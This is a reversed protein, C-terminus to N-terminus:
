SVYLKGGPALLLANPSAGLALKNELKWSKVDIVAISNSGASAVYVKGAASDVAIGRPEQIGEIQAILRRKAPDFVDVKDAGRHAIVLKGDAWALTDFGPRGPIDVIAVQRLQEASAVVLVSTLFFALLRLTRM